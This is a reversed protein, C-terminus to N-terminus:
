AITQLVTRSCPPVAFRIGVPLERDRGLLIELQLNHRRALLLTPIDIVFQICSDDVDPNIHTTTRQQGTGTSRVTTDWCKIPEGFARGLSEDLVQRFFEHNPQLDRRIAVLLNRTQVPLELEVMSGGQALNAFSEGKLIGNRNLIDETWPGSRIVLTLSMLVSPIQFQVEDKGVESDTASEYTSM